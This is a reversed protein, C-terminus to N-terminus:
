RLLEKREGSIKTKTKVKHYNLFFPKILFIFNVVYNIVDCGAECIIAICM